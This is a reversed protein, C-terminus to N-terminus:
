QVNEEDDLQDLLRDFHLIDVDYQTCVFDIIARVLVIEERSFVLLTTGAPINVETNQDFFCHKGQM